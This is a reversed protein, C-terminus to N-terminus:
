GSPMPDRFLFGNDRFADLMAGESGQPGQMYCSVPDTSDEWWIAWKNKGAGTLGYSYFRGHRGSDERYWWNRWGGFEELKKNEESAPRNGPTRMTDVDTWQACLMDIDDTITCRDRSRQADRKDRDKGCTVKPWFAEYQQQLSLAAVATSGRPPSTSADGGQGGSSSSLGPAVWIVVM